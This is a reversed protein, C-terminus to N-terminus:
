RGRWGIVRISARGSCSSSRPRTSIRGVSRVEGAEAIAVECFDVRVDLAIERVQEEETKVVPLVTAL